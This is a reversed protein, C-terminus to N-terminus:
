RNTATPISAIWKSTNPGELGKHGTANTRYFQTCQFKICIYKSNNYEGSQCSGKDIHFSM